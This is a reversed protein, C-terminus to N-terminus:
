STTEYFVEVDTPTFQHSGEHCRIQEFGTNESGICSQRSSSLIAFIPMGAVNANFLALIYRKQKSFHM